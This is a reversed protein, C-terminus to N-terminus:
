FPKKCLTDSDLIVIKFINDQNSIAHFQSCFKEGTLKDAFGYSLCLGNLHIHAGTDSM